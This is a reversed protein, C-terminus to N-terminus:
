ASSISRTAMTRISRRPKWCAASTRAAACDRGLSGFESALYYIVFFLFFPSALLRFLFSLPGWLFVGRGRPIWSLCVIGAAAGNGAGFVTRVAFFMLVAFYLYALGAVIELVGLPAIWQAILIPIQAASWAMAICTLLPAYDRQFVTRAAGVRAVLAGLLLLGPVYVVALVLLPMYFSFAVPLPGSKLAFGVAVAVLSAFLLSGRDLIDGM